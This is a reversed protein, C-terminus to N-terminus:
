TFVYKPKMSRNKLLQRVKKPKTDEYYTLTLNFLLTEHYAKIYPVIKHIGSWDSMAVSCNKDVAMIQCDSCIASYGESGAVHEVETVFWDCLYRLSVYTDFAFFDLYIHDNYHPSFMVFPISTVKFNVTFHVED